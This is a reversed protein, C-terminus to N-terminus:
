AFQATKLAENVAALAKEAETADVILEEIDTVEHKKALDIAAKRNDLWTELEQKLNLLSTRDLTNAPYKKLHDLAQPLHSM